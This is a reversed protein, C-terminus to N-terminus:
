APELEALTALLGAPAKFARVLTPVLARPPAPGLLVPMAQVPPAASAASVATGHQTPEPKPAPELPRGPAGTFAGSEIGSAFLDSLAELRHAFLPRACSTPAVEQGELRKAWKKSALRVFEADSREAEEHRRTGKGPSTFIATMSKKAKSTSRDHRLGLTLRMYAMFRRRRMPLSNDGNTLAGGDLKKGNAIALMIVHMHLNAQDRHVVASLVHDFERRVWTLCESWFEGRDWGDPAQVVIEIAAINDWRSPAIGLTDFEQRAQRSGEEPTM